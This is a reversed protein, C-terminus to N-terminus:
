QERKFYISDGRNVHGPEKGQLRAEFDDFCKESHTLCPKCERLEVGEKQECFVWEDKEPFLVPMIPLPTCRKASGTTSSALEMKDILSYLHDYNHPFCYALLDRFSLVGNKTRAYKVIDLRYDVNLSRFYPPAQKDNDDVVTVEVILENTSTTDYCRSLVLKFDVMAGYRFGLEILRYAYGMEYGGPYDEPIGLSAVEPTRRLFLRRIIWGWLDYINDSASGIKSVRVEMNPSIGAEFLMELMRFARFSHLRGSVSSFVTDVILNMLLPDTQHLDQLDCRGDKEFYEILLYKAVLIKVVQAPTISIKWSIPFHHRSGRSTIINTWINIRGNDPDTHLRRTAIVDAQEIFDLFRATSRLRGTYLMPGRNIKALIFLEIIGMFDRIFRCELMPNPPGPSYFLVSDISKAFAIFVQCQRDFMDIDDIYTKILNTTDPQCIFESVTSHMFSVSMDGRFTEGRVAPRTELFGKCRGNVQRSTNVLYRKLDEELLPEMSLKTALDPDKSLDGLFKYQLLSRGLFTFILTEFAKRRDYEPISELLHQYLGKLETPFAEVKRELDEFDDGNLVGQEITALVVRVWLFVGKAKTVVVEALISLATTDLPTSLDEIEDFRDMIFKKIDAHTWEHIRLNPSGEFKVEFENWERSSVCIKLHNSSHETWGIIEQILELPRGDFEDLGDIFFIMKHEKFAQASRLLNNLATRNATEQPFAIPILRPAAQLIQYLLSKVMGALNKQEDEGMKWFFAKARILQKEGSWSRLRELTVENECIFKMLTSKGAGPKGAIWFISRKRSAADEELWTTFERHKQYKAEAAVKAWDGMEEGNESSAPGHLLWEFTKRHATSVNEFRNHMQPDRLGQLIAFNQLPAEVAKQVRCFFDAMNASDFRFNHQLKQVQDRLHLIDQQTMSTTGLTEDLKRVLDSHSMSNIQVNLQQRYRDLDAQLQDREKKKRMNRLAGTVAGTMAELKGGPKKLKLDDLLVLLKNSLQSCQQALQCLAREDNTLGSTPLQNMVRLSLERMEQAIFGANKNANTTEEGSEYLEKATAVVKYGCEILQLINSALGLAAVAEM